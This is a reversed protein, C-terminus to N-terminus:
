FENHMSFCESLIQCNDWKKNLKRLKAAREQKLLRLKREALLEKNSPQSKFYRNENEDNEEIVVEGDEPNISRTKTATKYLTDAATQTSSRKNCV